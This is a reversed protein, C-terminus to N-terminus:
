FIYTENTRIKEVSVKVYNHEEDGLSNPLPSKRFLNWISMFEDTSSEKYTEFHTVKYDVEEEEGTLFSIRDLVAKYADDFTDYFSVFNSERNIPNKTEDKFFIHTEWIERVMFM